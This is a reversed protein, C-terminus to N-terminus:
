NIGELLSGNNEINYYNIHLFTDIDMPIFFSVLINDPFNFLFIYYNILFAPPYQGWINIKNKEATLHNRKSYLSNIDRM